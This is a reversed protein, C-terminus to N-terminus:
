FFIKKKQFSIHKWKGYRKIKRLWFCIECKTLWSLWTPIRVLEDKMTWNAMAATVTNNNNNSIIILRFNHTDKQTWSQHLKCGMYLSHIYSTLFPISVRRSNFVYCKYIFGVSVFSHVGINYKFFWLVM